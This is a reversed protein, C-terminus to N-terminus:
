SFPAASEGSGTESHMVEPSYRFCPRHGRSGPVSAHRPRPRPLHARIQSHRGEGRGRSGPSSLHPSRSKPVDESGTLREGAAGGRVSGERGGGERLIGNGGLGRGPSKKGPAGRQARTDSGQRGMTSNSATALSQPIHTCPSVSVCYAPLVKHSVHTARNM